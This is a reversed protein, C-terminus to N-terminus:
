HHHFSEESCNSNAEDSKPKSGIISGVSNANQSNIVAHLNCPDCSMVWPAYVRGCKPCVWGHDNAM